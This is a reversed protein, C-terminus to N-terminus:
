IAVKHRELLGSLDVGECQKKFIEARCWNAAARWDKNHFLNVFVAEIGYFAGPSGDKTLCDFDPCGGSFVNIGKDSAILTRARSSANPRLWQNSGLNTYGARELLDDVTLRTSDLYETIPTDNQEVDTGLTAKIQRKAAKAAKAEIEAEDIPLTLELLSYRCEPLMRHLNVWNGNARHSGAPRLLRDINQTADVKENLLAKLKALWRSSVNRIFDRDTKSEIRYPNQLLWYGHYGGCYSDSNVIMSPPVPMSDLAALVTQRDLYGTKNADFDYHLSVITKVELANGVVVARPNSERKIGLRAAMADPDMLNVKLYLDPRSHIAKAAESLQNLRFTGIPFIFDNGRACVVLVGDDRTCRGYLTRLYHLTAPHAKSNGDVPTRQLIM